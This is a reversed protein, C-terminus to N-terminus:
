ACNFGFCGGKPAVKDELVPPTEGTGKTLEEPAATKPSENPSEDKATEEARLEKKAADEKAPEEKPAEAKPAEETTVAGQEV